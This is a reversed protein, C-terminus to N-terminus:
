LLYCPRCSFGSKHLEGFDCVPFRCPHEKVGGPDNILIVAGPDARKVPMYVADEIGSHIGVELVAGGGPPHEGAIVVAEDSPDGGKDVEVNCFGIVLRGAAGPEKLANIVVLCGSQEEVCGPLPETFSAHLCHVTGYVESFCVFVPAQQYFSKCMRGELYGIVRWIVLPQKLSVAEPCPKLLLPKV